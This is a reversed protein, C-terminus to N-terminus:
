TRKQSIYRKKWIEFQAWYVKPTKAFSKKCTKWFEMRHTWPFFNLLIEKKSFLVRFNRSRKWTKLLFRESKRRFFSLLNSLVANKIRETSAKLTFNNQPIKENTKDKQFKFWFNWIKLVKPCVKPGTKQFNM